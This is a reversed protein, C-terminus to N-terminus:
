QTKFYNLHYDFIKNLIHADFMGDPIGKVSFTTMVEECALDITDIEVDEPTAYLTEAIFKVTAEIREKNQEPTM